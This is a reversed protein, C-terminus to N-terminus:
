KDRARHYVDPLNNPLADIKKPYNGVLFIRKDNIPSADIM